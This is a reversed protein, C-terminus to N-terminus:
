DLIVWPCISNLIICLQTSIPRKDQFGVHYFNIGSKQDQIPGTGKYDLRIMRLVGGTLWFDQCFIFFFGYFYIFVGRYREFRDIVILWIDQYCIFSDVFIWSCDGIDKLDFLQKQVSTKVWMCQTLYSHLLTYDKNKYM